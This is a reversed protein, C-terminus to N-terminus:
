DIVDHVVERAGESAHLGVEIQVVFLMTFQFRSADMAAGNM